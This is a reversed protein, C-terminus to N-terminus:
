PSEFKKDLGVGPLGSEKFTPLTEATILKTDLIIKSFTM